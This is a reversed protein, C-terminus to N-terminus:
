AGFLLSTENFITVSSCFNIAPLNESKSTMAIHTAFRFRMLDHRAPELAYDTQMIRETQKRLATQLTARQGSLWSFAIPM